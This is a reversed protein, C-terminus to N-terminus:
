WNHTDSRDSLRGSEQAVVDRGRAQPLPEIKIVPIQLTDIQEQHEDTM